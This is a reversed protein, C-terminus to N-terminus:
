KGKLARDLLARSAKDARADLNRNVEVAAKDEKGELQTKIARELSKLKDSPIGNIVKAPGNQSELRLRWFTNLTRRYLYFHIKYDSSSLSYFFCGVYSPKVEGQEVLFILGDINFPVAMM